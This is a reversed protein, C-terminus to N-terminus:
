QIMMYIQIINLFYENNNIKIFSTTENARFFDAGIDRKLKKNYQEISNIRSDPLGILIMMDIFSMNPKTNEIEITFKDNEMSNKKSIPTHYNLLERFLILQNQEREFNEKDIIIYKKNFIIEMTETYPFLETEYYTEKYNNYLLQNEPLNFTLDLVNSIM